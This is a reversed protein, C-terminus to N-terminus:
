RKSFQEKKRAGKLGYKKREKIRPDRKLLGAKKLTGRWDPNLDTLAKAIALKCADVQGSAGGGKVHLSVDHKKDLELARFPARLEWLMNENADFYDEDSKDNITIIGKGSSFLRASATAAKRRGLGYYYQQKKDAM